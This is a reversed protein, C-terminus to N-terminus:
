SKAAAPRPAPTGSRPAPAGAGAAGSHTSAAGNSGGRSGRGPGDGRGGSRGGVSAGYSGRGGGLAGRPPRSDSLHGNGHHVGGASDDGGGAADGNAMHGRVPGGSRPGLGRGASVGAGRGGGSGPPAGSGLNRSMPPTVKKQEVALRHDDLVIVAAIAAAAAEATDFDIFAIKENDRAGKQPKLSVDVVRGYQNLAEQLKAEDYSAPVNRVFVSCYDYKPASEAAAPVRDRGGGTAGGDASSHHAGSPVAGNAAASPAATARTTGATAAAAAAAAAAAKKKTMDAYSLPKGGADADAADGSGASDDTAAHAGGAHPLAAAAERAAPVAHSAPAAAPAPAHHASAEGTSVPAAPTPAAAPAAPQPPRVPAAQQQAQAAAAAQAVAQAQAVAVAQAQAALATAPNVLTVAGPVPAAVAAAATPGHPSLQINQPGGDTYRIIDNLVYYGKEQPALVFSQVFPRAVHPAAATAITGTVQVLVGNGATYQSDVSSIVPKCNDYHLGSIQRNIEDHTNVTVSTADRSPALTLHSHDMYFRYLLRPSNQLCLFYQSVFTTGVVNAHALAPQPVLPLLTTMRSPVTEPSPFCPVLQRWFGTRFSEGQLM